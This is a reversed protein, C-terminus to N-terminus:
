TGIMRVTVPANLPHVVGHGLHQTHDDVLSLVVSVQMKRVDFESVGIGDARLRAQRGNLDVHASEWTERHCNEVPGANRPLLTQGAVVHGIPIHRGISLLSCIASNTCM